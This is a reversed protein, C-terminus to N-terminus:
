IEAKDATDDRLPRALKNIEHTAVGVGLKTCRSHRRDIQEGFDVGKKSGTSKPPSNLPLPLPTPTPTLTAM